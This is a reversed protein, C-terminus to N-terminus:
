IAGGSRLSFGPSSTGRMGLSDWTTTQKLTADPRHVLVLVQDSRPADPNRRATVLIGDADACYSGTTAEKALAFREGSREVACVSSRMDGFTGVESTISALLPQDAVLQSLFRRFYNSDLGHRVIC